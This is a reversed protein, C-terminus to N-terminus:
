RGGGADALQAQALVHFDTAGQRSEIICVFSPQAFRFATSATFEADLSPMSWRLSSFLSNVLNLPTAFEDAEAVKISCLAM